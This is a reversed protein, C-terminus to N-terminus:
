RLNILQKIIQLDEPTTIKINDYSGELVKVGVNTFAEVLMSDDTAFFGEEIGKQYAKLLLSRKFAQPTQVSILYNRNPTTVVNENENIIKITDKVKVGYICAEFKKTSEIILDIAEISIMPRVADHVLVIDISDDLCKLGEYVSDQREKGGKIIQTIKSFGYRNKIYKEAYGIEDEGVVLIIEDINNSLQFQNITYALIPKGEIEIYQKSVDNRMRKGVGAAPIIVAVKNFMIKFVGKDYRLILFM